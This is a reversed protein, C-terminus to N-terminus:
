ANVLGKARMTKAREKDLQRALTVIDRDDRISASGILPANQQWIQGGGNNAVAASAATPLGTSSAAVQPLRSEMGQLTRVNKKLNGISAKMNDEMDWMAYEIKTHPSGFLGDKFGNWLNEGISKAKNFFDGVFGGIASVASTLYGVISGPLDAFFSIVGNFFSSGLSAATTFISGIFSGIASITAVIASGVAGPVQAFFSGVTTLFGVGIEGAKTLADIVFSGIAEGAAVLARGIVGPVQSFFNGVAKIFGVGLEGAKTLAGLVFNGIAKGAATLGKGTNKPLDTFFGVVSDIADGIGRVLTIAAEEGWRAMTGIALGLYYAIQEPLKSFFRGVAGAADGLAGAINGPLDSFFKGISKGLDTFGKIVGNFASVGVRGISSGLDSFFGGVASAATGLADGITGGLREFFRGIAKGANALTTPLDKFGKVVGDFAAAINKGVDRFGKEVGDLGAQMDQWLGDIFDRFGKVKTYLLYFGYALLAIAAIILLIPLLASAEGAAAAEGGAGAIQGAAGLAKFANALEGFVRVARVINGITLLFGGALIALVGTLGVIGVIITKVPGPLKEFFLIVERLGDVFGKLMGQFPEGAEVKLAEITAKLRKVSGSLNDLRKEAIDSATVKQIADNMENFGATGEKTLAQVATIARKGFIKNFIDQKELATLGKTKDQLIQFVESLPLANGKADQFGKGTKSTEIGLDHLADKAQKTKGNLDLFVERLSTGAQSGKIGQNGLIALAASVDEITGGVAYAAPGVYKLSTALDNIDVTSANAAGALTDAAATAQEAGLHFQALIQVLNEGASAVSIDAAQALDVSAKGVGKIIDETTVGAKALEVFAKSLAIPGFSSNKGLDIAAAKLRDINAATEDTLAQIFSFNADFKAASNVVDAFVAVAQEGFRIMSGGASRLALDANKLDSTNINIAGSATGLNLAM